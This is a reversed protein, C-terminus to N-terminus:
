YVFKRNRSLFEFSLLESRDEIFSFVSFLTFFGFFECYSVLYVAFKFRFIFSFGCFYSSSNLISTDTVM